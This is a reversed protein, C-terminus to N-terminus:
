KHFVRLPRRLMLKEIVAAIKEPEMKQVLYAHAKDPTTRWENSGNENVHLYGETRLDWYDSLGGDLGRVAYLAATQDWSQRDNLGNYLEFARRVPTGKPVQQLEAGTMIKNGIEWGSFVILTPWNAIAYAAAPGDHILNSERGEPFKGGMCVWAKVKRKVLGIGNLDSHEDPGTTLLNKFNTVQGVSVMVVSKDPQGALVKRYLVAADPADDASKLSHPFEKAITEAFRSRKDFVLGKVVGIPVGPRHFYTNLADLCLPSWRNKGSFGMALIEVEDQDALAHLVAVTGVDDVDEMDTDLILRIPQPEDAHAFAAVIVTIALSVAIKEFSM